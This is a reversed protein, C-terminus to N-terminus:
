PAKRLDSKVQRLLHNSAGRQFRREHRLRACRATSSTRTRRHLQTRCQSRKAFNSALRVRSRGREYDPPAPGPVLSSHSLQTGCVVFGAQSTGCSCWGHRARNQRGCLGPAHKAGYGLKRGIKTLPDDPVGCCAFKKLLIADGRGYLWSRKLRAPLAVGRRYNVIADDCYGFRAGSLQARWCFDVDEASAGPFSEDFGDLDLYLSRRIALNATPTMALFDLHRRSGGRKSESSIVAPEGLDVLRGGVLDANELAQAMSRLWFPEVVDDADCFLLLSGASAHAGVNRRTHLVLNRRPM